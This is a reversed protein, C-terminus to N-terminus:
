YTVHIGEDALAVKAFLNRRESGLLMVYLLKSYLARLGEDMQPVSSLSHLFKHGFITHRLLLTRQCKRLRIM